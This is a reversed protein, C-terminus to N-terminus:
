AARAFQKELAAIRGMRRYYQGYVLGALLLFLAAMFLWIQWMSLPGGASDVWSWFDCTIWATDLQGAQAAAAGVAGPPLRVESTPVVIGFIPMSHADALQASRLVLRNGEAAHYWALSGDYPEGLAGQPPSVMGVPVNGQITLDGRTHLTLKQTQPTRLLDDVATEHYRLNAPPGTVVAYLTLLLFLLGLGGVVGSYILMGTRGLGPFYFDTRSLRGENQALMAPLQETRLKGAQWLKVMAIPLIHYRADLSSVLGLVDTKDLDRGTVTTQMADASYQKYLGVDNAAVMRFVSLTMQAPANGNWPDSAPFVEVTGLQVPVPYLRLGYM